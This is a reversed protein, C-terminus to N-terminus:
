PLSAIPLRSSRIQPVKDDHVTWAAVLADGSRVLQPLSLPSVEEDGSLVQVEGTEGNPKVRRLCVRARREDKRCLWSVAADGDDLIALGVRGFVEDGTVDVPEAFTEGSDTSRALRVKSEGNAATFWAVVVENGDADIAPGNVPCGDITWGDVAVPHGPQWAGDEFRTAYIDRTENETRNRYVALAGRDTMAVDTQCCDCILEDVLTEGAVQLEGSYTASRLTMGALTADPQPEQAMNRGDLWILGLGSDDPFISVFGHETMTGDDHPKVPAAWSAGADSSTSLLVDYAYGGAPQRILWHAAWLSGSVPVVAPFDAWNVFWDDGRAAVQPDSWSADELTSYRLAHGTEEPETWSLVVRGDDAVALGPSQSGSAAPVDMPTDAAATAGPTAPGCSTQTLAAALFLALCSPRRHPLNTGLM